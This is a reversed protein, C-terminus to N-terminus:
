RNFNINEYNSENPEPIILGIYSSAWTRINLLYKEFEKTNLETTSMTGKLVEVKEKVKFEMEKQLFRFKLVEHMEDIDYGLEDALMQVVVGWYYNNQNLSRQSQIEKIELLVNKNDLTEVKQMFLDRDILKLKKNIIKGRFKM